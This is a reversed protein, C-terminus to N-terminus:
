RKRAGTSRKAPKKRAAGKPKAKAKGRGRAPAKRAAPEEGDTIREVLDALDEIQKEIREVDKRSAVPIAEIASEIRSELAKELTSWRHRLGDLLSDRLKLADKATLKGSKLFGKFRRDIESEFGKIQDLGSEWTARLYELLEHPKGQLLNSFLETPLFGGGSEKEKDMLAKSLIVGTIDKGSDNDVVQIKEGRGVLTGLHNLTLYRKERTDYLKRNSYRKITRV